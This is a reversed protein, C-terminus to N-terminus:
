PNEIKACFLILTKNIKPCYQTLFILYPRDCKMIFPIKKNCNQSLTLKVSTVAAATTGKEDMEFYTKQLVKDFFILKYDTLYSFDAGEKFAEELGLQNLMNNLEMSKELKIRPLYLEVEETKMNHFISFVNKSDM